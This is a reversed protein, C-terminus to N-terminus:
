TGPLRELLRTAAARVLAMDLEHWRSPAAAAASVGLALLEDRLQEHLRSFGIHHPSALPPDGYFDVIHALVLETHPSLALAALEARREMEAEIAGPSIGFQLLLGAGRLLHQEIPMYYFSDVLHRREHARIMDLVAATLDADAVPSRLTLRWSADLPDLGVDDPVPDDQLALGDARAIERRSLLGLAWDVIADHDLLFHNLLAVGALDGGLMGGLAQVDRDFGIVEFCRGPLPQRTADPLERVSLRTVMLGEVTGGARRGLVLHRNYRALHACLGEGSFPDLMEGVLPAQFQEPDGIVDAGLVRESLARLRGLVTVLDSTDGQRYGRYLLRRLGAEFALERRAEDQHERWLPESAPFRRRAVEACLEVEVLMGVARLAELLGRAVDVDRLPDGEKWPGDLLQLWPGRLENDAAAVVHRPVETDLQRVFAAVDGMSLLLRRLPRLVDPSPREAARRELLARAAVLQGDDELLEALAVAGGGDGFARLRAGRERLVDAAQLRQDRSAVTETWGRLLAQVGPDFPRQRLAAMLAGWAEGRRDRAAAVQALGLEAVGPVRADGRMAQYVLAAADYREVERLAAAYAVGVLPHQGSAAYLREYMELARAPDVGRLTHALGLWPWVAGPALAAARRFGDLKKRPDEEVRALLYRAAGDTPRAAVAARAEQLLRGRRGRRRMVDQRVRRADVCGPAERLLDDIVDLAQVPEGREVAQRAAWALRGAPEDGWPLDGVRPPPMGEGISQCGILLGALLM